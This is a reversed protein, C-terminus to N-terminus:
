HQKESTNQFGLSDPNEGRTNLNEPSEPDPESVGFKEADFKKQM